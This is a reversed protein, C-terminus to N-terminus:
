RQSPEGHPASLIRRPGRQDAQSGYFGNGTQLSGAYGLDDHPPAQVAATETSSTRDHGAIGFGVILLAICGYFVSIGVL